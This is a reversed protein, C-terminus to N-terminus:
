RKGTAQLNRVPPLTMSYGYLEGLPRPGVCLGGVFCVAHQALTDNWMYIEGEEVLWFRKWLTFWM